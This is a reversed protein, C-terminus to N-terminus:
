NNRAVTPLDLFNAAESGWTLLGSNLGPVAGGDLAVHAFSLGALGAASPTQRRPAPVSAVAGDVAGGMWLESLLRAGQLPVLHARACAECRFRAFGGEFAGCMLFERFEREVFQPLGVGAGAEAAERLFAELHEGIVRHLVTHEADRPRYV